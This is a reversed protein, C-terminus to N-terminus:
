GGETSAGYREMLHDYWAQTCIEQLKDQIDQPLDSCNISVQGIITSKTEGGFNWSPVFDVTMLRVSVAPNPIKDAM